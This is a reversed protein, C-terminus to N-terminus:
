VNRSINILSVKLPNDSFLLHMLEVSIFSLMSFLAQFQNFELPLKISLQHSSM